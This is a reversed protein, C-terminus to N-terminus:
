GGRRRRGKSPVHRHRHRNRHTTGHSYNPALRSQIQREAKEMTSGHRMGKLHLLGHIFLYGVFEQYAMGYEPAQAQAVELCIIIEGARAAVPYSLVNPVYSKKRLQVNIAKARAPGAFVLSIDWTPLAAKRAQEFPFVPAKRRTM